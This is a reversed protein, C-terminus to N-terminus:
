TPLPMGLESPVFVFKRHESLKRNCKGCVEQDDLNIDDLGIVCHDGSVPRQIFGSGDPCLFVICKKQPQVGVHEEQFQKLKTEALVPIHESLFSRLNIDESFLEEERLCDTQFEDILVLAQTLQDDEEAYQWINILELAAAEDLMPSTALEHYRHVRSKQDDSLDLRNLAAKQLHPLSLLYVDDLTHPCM